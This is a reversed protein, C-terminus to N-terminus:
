WLVRLREMYQKVAHMKELSSERDNLCIDPEIHTAVEMILLIWRTYNLKDVKHKGKTYLLIIIKILCSLLEHESM